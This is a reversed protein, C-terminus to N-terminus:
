FRCLYGDASALTELIFVNLLKRRREVILFIVYLLVQHLVVHLHLILILVFRFGLFHYAALSNVHINRRREGVLTAKFLIVLAFTVEAVLGLQPWAVLDWSFVASGFAVLLRQLVQQGHGLM